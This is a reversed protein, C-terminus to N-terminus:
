TFKVRRIRENTLSLGSLPKDVDLLRNRPTGLSETRDIKQTISRVLDRAQKISHGRLLEKTTEDFLPYAIWHEFNKVLDFPTNGNNDKLMLDGGKEILVAAAKMNNSNVAFHLPTFANENLVNIDFQQSTLYEIVDCFDRRSACLHVITNMGSFLISKPNHHNELLFKVTNSPQDCTQQEMLIKELFREIELEKFRFGREILWQACLLFNNAIALYVLSPPISGTEKDLIDKFTNQRDNEMIVLIGDSRGQIAACHIATLKKKNRKYLDCGRAILQKICETDTPKGHEGYCRAHLATNRENDVANVNIDHQCLLDIVEPTRTRHLVTAQKTDRVDIDIKASLLRKILEVNGFYCAVHLLSSGNVCRTNVTSLTHTGDLHNNIVEDFTEMNGLLLESRYKEWYDCVSQIFDQFNKTRIAQIANLGSKSKITIDAGWEILLQSIEKRGCEAALFLPTYGARNQVNLPANQQLLYLVINFTSYKCAVHLATNGTDGYKSGLFVPDSDFFSVLNRVTELEQDRVAKFLSTLSNTFDGTFIKYLFKSGPKLPKNGSLVDLFIQLNSHEGAKLECNNHVPLNLLKRSTEKGDYKKDDHFEGDENKVIVKRESVLLEKSKLEYFGFNNTLSTNIMQSAILEKVTCDSNVQVLEYKQKMAAAVRSSVKRQIEQVENMWLQCKEVDHDGKILAMEEKYVVLKEEIKHKRDLEEQKYIVSPFALLEEKRKATEKTLYEMEKTVARAQIMMYGSMFFFAFYSGVGIPDTQVLDEAHFSSTCRSTEMLLDLVLNVTWRDNLLVEATLTDTVISNLLACLVRSDVLDRFCTVEDLKQGAKTMKLHKNILSYICEFPSPISKLHRKKIMKIDRNIAAMKSTVKSSSSTQNSQLINKFSDGNGSYGFMPPTFNLPYKVIEEWKGSQFFDSRLWIFQIDYTVIKWFFEFVESAINSAIQRYDLTINSPIIGCEILEEVIWRIRTEKQTLSLGEFTKLKRFPRGTVCEVLVKLNYGVMFDSVINKMLDDHGAYQLRLNAWATLGKIRTEFSM